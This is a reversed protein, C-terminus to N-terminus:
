TQLTQLGVDKFLELICFIFWLSAVFANTLNEADKNQMAPNTEKGLFVFAKGAGAPLPLIAESVEM